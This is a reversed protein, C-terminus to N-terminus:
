NRQDTKKYIFKENPTEINFYDNFYESYEKPYYDKNLELLAKNFKIKYVEINEIYNLLHEINAKSKPIQLGNYIILKNSNYKMKINKKFKTMKFIQCILHYLFNNEILISYNKELLIQNLVEEELSYFIINLLGQCFFTNLKNNNKLSKIIKLKRQYNNM